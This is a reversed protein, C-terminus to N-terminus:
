GTEIDSGAELPFFTELDEIAEEPISELLERCSEAGVDDGGITVLDPDGERIILYTLSGLVALENAGATVEGGLIVVGDRSTDACRVTNVVDTVRFEGTAEGDVEQVDINLTQGAFGGGEGVIEVDEGRALLTPGDDSGDDSCAGILLIATAATAVPAALRTNMQGGPTPTPALAGETTPCDTPRAQDTTGVTEGDPVLAVALALAAVVCAAIALFRATTPGSRRAVRGFAAEADTREAVEQALARMRARIEDDAEETMTDLEDDHNDSM